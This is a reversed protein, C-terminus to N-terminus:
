LTNEGSRRRTVRMRERNVIRTEELTRGKRGTRNVNGYPAGPEGFFRISNRSAFASLSGVSISLGYLEKLAYSARSLSLGDEALRRVLIREAATWRRRPSM